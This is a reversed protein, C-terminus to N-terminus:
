ESSSKSVLDPDAICDIAVSGGMSDEVVWCGAGRLDDHWYYISIGRPLVENTMSHGLDLGSSGCATLLLIPTFLFALKKMSESEKKVATM